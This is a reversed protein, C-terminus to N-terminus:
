VKGGLPMRRLIPLQTGLIDSRFAVPLNPPTALHVWGVLPLSHDSASGQAAIAAPVARSSASGTRVRKGRAERLDSGLPVRSQIAIEFGTLNCGTGSPFDPPSAGVVWRVRPLRCHGISRFLVVTGAAGVTPPLPGGGGSGKSSEEGLNGGLPMRGLIP